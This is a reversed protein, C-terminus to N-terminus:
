VNLRPQADRHFQVTSISTATSDASSTAALNFSFTSMVTPNVSSTSNMNPGSMATSDSAVEFAYIFLFCVKAGAQVTKLQSYETDNTLTMSWSPKFGVVMQANYRSVGAPKPATGFYQDFIPQAKASVADGPPPNHAAAAVRYNDFWSGRDIGMTAIGGFTLSFAQAIQDTKSTTTSGSGSGSGSVDDWVFSLGGSGSTTKTDNSTHDYAYNYSFQPPGDTSQQWAQITGNLLPVDYLPVYNASAATSSGNGGSSSSVLMNLGPQSGSNAGTFSNAILRAQGFLAGNDGSLEDQIKDYTTKSEMCVMNAEQYAPWNLAAWQLLGTNYTANLPQFEMDNAQMYYPLADSLAAHEKGCLITVNTLASALLTSNADSTSPMAKNLDQLFNTYSTSFFELSGDELSPLRDCTNYLIENLDNQSVETSTHAFEISPWGTSFHVSTDGVVHVSALYQEIAMQTLQQVNMTPVSDDRKQPSPLALAKHPLLAWAIACGLIYDKPAMISESLDRSATSINSGITLINGGLGVLHGLTLSPWFGALEPDVTRTAPETTTTRTGSTGSPAGVTSVIAASNMPNGATPVETPLDVTFNLSTPDNDDYYNDKAGECIVEAEQYGPANLAAWRLFDPDTINLNNPPPVDLEDIYDGLAAQLAATVDPGCKPQINEYAAVVTANTTTPPPINDIESLTPAQRPVNVAVTLSFTLLCISM